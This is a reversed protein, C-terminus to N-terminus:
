TGSLATSGGYGTKNTIILPPGETYYHNSQALGWNQKRGSERHVYAKGIGTPRAEALGDVSRLGARYLVTTWKPPYCFM